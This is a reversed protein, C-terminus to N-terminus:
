TSKRDKWYDSIYFYLLKQYELLTDRMYSRYKWWNYPKYAEYDTSVIYYKFENDTLRKLIKKVRLMHYKSTVLIISKIANKKCYEYIDNIEDYTSTAYDNLIIFSSEPVGFEIAIYKNVDPELQLKIGKRKLYIYSEPHSVYDIIIIPAYGQKYIDIAQLIRAPTKGNLVVIADAKQLKDETILFNSISILITFRFFFLILFVLLICLSVLIKRSRLIRTNM